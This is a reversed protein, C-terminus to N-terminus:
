SLGCPKGFTVLFNTDRDSVITRPMGHLRIVDKFFLAAVHSADDTKNCAVFHAMKSFRDVIVFISDKGHRTRPLGLVFDMSVDTWPQSPIPLPTYLGHPQVKSKALKCTTCRACIHEVDRIMHPWHFHDRMIQITKAVGFHGMLGGGHAEKKLHMVNWPKQITKGDMTEIRYAGPRVIDTIRYPGEWNAGLKGANLEATNQFVKRLALDGVRFRRSRVNTNYYRATAQQYNQIRILAGDRRENVLDLEDLLM